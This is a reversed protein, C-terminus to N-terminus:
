RIKQLNNIIYQLELEIEDVSDLISEIIIPLNTNPIADIIVKQKTKSLPEHFTEFGSLHIEKIKPLFADILDNSLRMSPDISFAHNIDFVMSADIKKFIRQMDEVSKCTKNRYDMNEIAFPLDFDKLFSFDDFSDPHLVIANFKVQSHMKAIAELANIYAKQDKSNYQPAHLSLYEFGRLDNAKLNVFENVDSLNHVMLEIAQCGSRRFLDITAPSLSNHTKYLCGTSFGIIM